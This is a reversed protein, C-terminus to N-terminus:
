APVLLYPSSAVFSIEFEYLNCSKLLLVIDHGLFGQFHFHQLKLKHEFDDGFTGQYTHKTVEHIEELGTEVNSALAMLVFDSCCSGRFKGM